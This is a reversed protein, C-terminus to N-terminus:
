TGFVARSAFTSTAKHLQMPKPEFFLAKTRSRYTPQHKLLESLAAVLKFAEVGAVICKLFISAPLALHGPYM